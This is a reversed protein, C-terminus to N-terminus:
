KECELNWRNHWSSSRTFFKTVDKNCTILSFMKENNVIINIMMSFDLGFTHIKISLRLSSSFWPLKPEQLEDLFVQYEIRSRHFQDFVIDQLVRM